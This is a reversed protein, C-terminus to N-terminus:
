PMDQPHWVLTQHLFCYFYLRLLAFTVPHTVWWSMWRIVAALLHCSRASSDQELIVTIRSCYTFLSRHFTLSDFFRLFRDAARERISLCHNFSIPFEGISDGGRFLCDILFMVGMRHIIKQTILLIVCM